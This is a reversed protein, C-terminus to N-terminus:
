EDTDGEVANRRDIAEVEGVAVAAVQILEVRRAQDDTEALAEFVEELLIGDWTLEGESARADNIDQWQEAKRAFPRASPLSFYSRHNQEGWKDDQASRENLVEALVDATVHQQTSYNDDSVQVSGQENTPLVPVPDPRELLDISGALWRGKRNTPWAHDGYRM